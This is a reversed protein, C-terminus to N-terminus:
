FSISVEYVTYLNEARHYHKRILQRSVRKGEGVNWLQRTVFGDEDFKHWGRFIQSLGFLYTPGEYSTKLHIIKLHFAIVM